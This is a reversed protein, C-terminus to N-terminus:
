PQEERREVIGRGVGGTAVLAGLREAAYKECQDDDWAATQEDDDDFWFGFAFYVYRGSM